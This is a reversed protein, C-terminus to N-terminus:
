ADFFVTENDGQMYIDFLYVIQGNMEKRQAILTSRREAPIRGLVPDSANAATEDSFYIRTYVHSLLGRMMVVMNIHPAHGDEGSPKVTHFVYSNDRETGTGTRGFGELSDDQRIELIADPIVEGKGDFLRGKLMIRQATEPSDKYLYNDAISRFNYLYQEPTLGYAFYPGVTQSPTQQYKTNM